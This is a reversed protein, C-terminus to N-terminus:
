LIKFYIGFAESINKTKLNEGNRCDKMSNCDSCTSCSQNVSFSPATFRSRSSPKRLPKSSLASNLISELDAEESYQSMKSPM